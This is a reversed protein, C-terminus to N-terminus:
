MDSCSIKRTQPACWFREIADGWEESSAWVRAGDLKTPQPALMQMSPIGWAGGQTAAHETPADTLYEVM